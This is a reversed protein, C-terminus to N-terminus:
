GAKDKKRNKLLTKLREISVPQNEFAMSQAVWEPIKKRYLAERKAPDAHLERWRRLRANLEATDIEKRMRTKMDAM